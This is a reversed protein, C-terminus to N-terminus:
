VEPFRTAARHFHPHNSSHGTGCDQCYQLDRIEELDARWDKVIGASPKPKQLRRVYEAIANNLQLENLKYGTLQEFALPMDKLWQGPSAEVFQAWPERAPDLRVDTAKQPMLAHFYRLLFQDLFMPSLEEYPLDGWAKRTPYSQGDNSKFVVVSQQQREERREIAPPPMRANARQSVEFDDRQSESLIPMGPKPRRVGQAIWGLACGLMFCIFASAVLIVIM